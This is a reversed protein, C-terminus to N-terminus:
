IEMKRFNCVLLLHLCYLLSDYVNFLNILLMQDHFIGVFKYKHCETRCFSDYKQCDCNINEGHITIKNHQRISIYFIRFAILQSLSHLLIPFPSRFPSHSAHCHQRHQKTCPMASPAMPVICLMGYM